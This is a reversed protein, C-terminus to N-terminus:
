RRERRENEDEEESSLKSVASEHSKRRPGSLSPRLSSGIIPISSTSLFKVSPLYARPDYFTYSKEIAATTATTSNDPQRSEAESASTQDGPSPSPSGETSEISPAPHSRPHRANTPTTIDEALDSPSEPLVLEPITASNRKPSASQYNDLRSHASLMSASGVSKRPSGNRRMRNFPDSGHRQSSASSGARDRELSANSSIGQRWSMIREQPPQTTVSDSRAVGQSSSTSNERGLMARRMYTSSPRTRSGGSFISAKDESEFTKRKTYGCDQRYVRIVGASSATVIIHGSEHYAKSLEYHKDHKGTSASQNLRPPSEQISSDDATPPHSSAHSESRSMLQVPPPHCLEYIPDHSRGLLQRAKAPAITTVTVRDKHADFCEMPRQGNKSEKEPPGNTWIHAGRDESGTSIYRGCDSVCARIPLEEAKHGKFKAELSRDSANYLRLRSDASSILIRVEALPEGTDNGANSKMQHDFADISNIKSGRANKGHTSKAILKGRPKLKETDFFYCTGNMTGAMCQNGDPVFAVATIADPVQVAYAVHKDPISFLRLRADRCGSLFFRDDLPHFRVSLVQENHKFTCLCEVRSTHWLKATKDMSSSILFDSKSWHLDTIPGTHGKYERFVREHFVPANLRTETGTLQADAEFQRRDDPTGLVAYIRIVGDQSGVALYKGSRSFAM